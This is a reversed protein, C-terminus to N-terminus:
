RTREWTRWRMRSSLESSTSSQIRLHTLPPPPSNRPSPPSPRITPSSPSPSPNTRYTGTPSISYDASEPRHPLLPPCRLSLRVQNALAILMFEGRPWIHLYNPELLFTDNPGAPIALELYSHPAYFQRYDFSCLPFTLSLLPVPLPLFVFRLASGRMMERRVKSYAGDGGVVFDFMQKKTEEGRKQLTVEVGKEKRLDMEQLRTEFRTTVSGRGEKALGDVHDLLHIGLATRSISRICEGEEEYRGYDQGQPKVESVVGDGLKTTGKGKPHVMRGRMEIGEKLVREALEESVARLAEIGRPSLALNISRAREASTSLRPDARGEILTVTWGRSALMAAALTGVLGAGVVLATRDDPTSM